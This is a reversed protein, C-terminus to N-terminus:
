IFGLYSHNLTLFHYSCCFFSSNISYFLNHIFNNHEPIEFLKNLLIRSFILLFFLFYITFSWAFSLSLPPPLHKQSFSHITHLIWSCFFYPFWQSVFKNIILTEINYILPRFLSILNSRNDYFHSILPKIFSENLTQFILAFISLFDPM